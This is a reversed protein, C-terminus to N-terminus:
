NIKFLVFYKDEYVIDVNTRKIIEYIVYNKNILAYEFKYKNVIKDYNSIINAGDYIINVDKGNFEKLYLDCRSDIFIPIDNFM